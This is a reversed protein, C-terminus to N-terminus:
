ALARATGLTRAIYLRDDHTLLRHHEDCIFYNWKAIQRPKGFKFCGKAQCGHQINASKKMVATKKM